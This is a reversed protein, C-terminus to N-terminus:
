PLLKAERKAIANAAAAASVCEAKSGSLAWAAFLTARPLIQDVDRAAVVAV